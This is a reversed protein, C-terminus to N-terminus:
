NALEDKLEKVKELRASLKEKVNASIDKISLIENCYLLANQKDGLKQYLKAIINKLIIEKYHNQDPVQMYSNLVKTYTKISVVKDIDEYARALGWLFLRNDPYEKLAEQALNAAKNYEGRDIYIWILSNIALHDNYSSHSIANKLLEIGSQEEDKIFPLWDLFETKRSKWYKYAGIAIYADYFKPDLKLCKEFDSRAKLGESFATIWSKNLASFYATYGDSLALFYNDWINNGEKELLEKSQERAAKLNSNIFNSNFEEGLDYSKAIEVAALYIKGLPLNPFNSNLQNFDNTAAEYNQNIIEKIGKRLFNNVSSDPYSQSFIFPSSLAVILFVFSLKYHVM